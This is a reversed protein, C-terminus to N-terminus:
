PGHRDARQLLGESGASPPADNPRGPRQLDAPDGQAGGNAPHLGQSLCDGESKQPDPINDPDIDLTFSQSLSGRELMRSSRIRNTHGYLYLKLLTRVFLAAAGTAAPQFRAFGLVRVDLEDVFAGIFRM